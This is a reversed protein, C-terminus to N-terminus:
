TWCVFLHKLFPKASSLNYISVETIHKTEEVQPANTTATQNLDEIELSPIVFDDNDLLYIIVNIWVVM